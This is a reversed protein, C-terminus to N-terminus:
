REQHAFAASTEPTLSAWQDSCTCDPSQWRYPDERHLKRRVGASSLQIVSSRAWRAEPVLRAAQQYIRTGLGLGYVLDGLGRPTTNSIEPVEYSKAHITWIGPTSSETCRIRQGSTYHELIIWRRGDAHDHVHNYQEEESVGPPNVLMQRRQVQVIATSRIQGRSLLEKTAPHETVPLDELTYNALVEHTADVIQDLHELVRPHFENHLVGEWWASSTIASTLETLVLEHAIKRGPVARLQDELRRLTAVQTTVDTLREEAARRRRFWPVAPAPGTLVATLGTAAKTHRSLTADWDALQEQLSRYQPRKSANPPHNM